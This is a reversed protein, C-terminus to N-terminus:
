INTNIDMSQCQEWVQNLSTEEQLTLHNFCLHMGTSLASSLQGLTSRLLSACRYWGGGLLESSILLCVSHSLWPFPLLAWFRHGRSMIHQQGHLNIAAVTEIYFICLLLDTWFGLMSLFTAGSGWGLQPTIPLPHSGLSPCDSRKLLTAVIPEGHGIPHGSGWGQGECVCIPQM